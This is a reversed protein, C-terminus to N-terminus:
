HARPRPQHIRHRAASLFEEAAGDGAGAVARDMALAGIIDAEHWGADIATQAIIAIHPELAKFAEQDRDDNWMSGAPPPAITRM